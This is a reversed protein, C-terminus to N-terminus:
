KGLNKAIYVRIPCRCYHSYAYPVSFVCLNGNDELCLVFSELGVDEARCLNHFGKKYCEFGKPCATHGIIEEIQEKHTQEM